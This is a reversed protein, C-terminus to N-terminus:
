KGGTCVHIIKLIANNVKLNSDVEVGASKHLSIWCLDFVLM